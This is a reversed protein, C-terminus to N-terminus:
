AKMCNLMWHVGFRDVLVGMKGGYFTTHVPRLPVGEEVLAAYTRELAAPEDFDLALFVNTQKAAEAGPMGDSIMLSHGHVRLASHIVHEESGPRPTSGPVENLPILAEVKAGLVREYFAIARRTQGALFVYPTLSQISMPDEQLLSAM